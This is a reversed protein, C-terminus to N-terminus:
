SAAAFHYLAAKNFFGSSRAESSPYQKSQQLGAICLCGLICDVLERLDIWRILVQRLERGARMASFVLTSNTRKVWLDSMFFCGILHNQQRPRIAPANSM